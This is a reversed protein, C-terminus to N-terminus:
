DEDEEFNIQKLYEEMSGYFVVWRFSSLLSGGEDENNSHDDDVDVDVLYFIWGGSESFSLASKYRTRQAFRIRNEIKLRRKIFQNENRTNAIQIQRHIYTHLLCYM